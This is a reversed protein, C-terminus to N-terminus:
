NDPVGYNRRAFITAIIAVFFAPIGGIFFSGLVTLILAGWFTGFYIWAVLFFSVCFFMVLAIFGDNDLADEVDAFLNQKKMAM